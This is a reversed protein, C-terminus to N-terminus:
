AAFCPMIPVVYAHKDAYLLTLCTSNHFERGFYAAKVSPDLSDLVELFETIVDGTTEGASRQRVALTYRKNEVPIYLTSYAHFSTTGRKAKSLYLTEM